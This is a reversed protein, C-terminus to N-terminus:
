GVSWRRPSWSRKARHCRRWYVARLGRGVGRSGRHSRAGETVSTLCGVCESNALAGTERDGARLRKGSNCCASGVWLSPTAAPSSLRSAGSYTTVASLFDNLRGPELGWFEAVLDLVLDSGTGSNRVCVGSKLRSKFCLQIRFDTWISTFNHM